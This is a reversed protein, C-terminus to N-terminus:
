TEVTHVCFEPAGRTHFIGIPIEEQRERFIDLKIGQTSVNMPDQKNSIMSKMDYAANEYLVAALNPFSLMSDNRTTIIERELPSFPLIPRNKLALTRLCGRRHQM